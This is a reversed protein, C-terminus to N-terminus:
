RAWTVGDRTLLALTRDDNEGRKEFALWAILAQVPDAAGLVPAPHSSTIANPLPAGDVQGVRLQAFLAEAHRALPYWADEVGDTALLLAACTTADAISMSQALQEVAGDDPLFHTVEGSFDGSDGLLPQTVTGDAHFWAMAGDGVQMLGVRGQHLTATLLTTRLDRSAIGALTAFRRMAEHTARAASQLAEELAGAPARGHQLADRVAHTFVATAIASGLRSWAASGAGDAVAASWGHAFLVTADADERYDGRHAHLRGRCSASLLSWGEHRAEMGVADAPPVHGDAAVVAPSVARLHELWEPPCWPAEPAVVSWVARPPAETGDTNPASSANM